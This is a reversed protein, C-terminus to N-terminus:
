KRKKDRTAASAELYALVESILYGILAYIVLAFLASVELVFGGELTPSPFMGEFPALLPASTEYVWEVFPTQPNAGLLKLVIRLGILFEVIGIVFNTIASIIGAAFM